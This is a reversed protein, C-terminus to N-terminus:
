SGCGIAFRPPRAAGLRGPPSEPEMDAGEQEGAGDESELMHGLEDSESTGANREIRELLGRLREISM